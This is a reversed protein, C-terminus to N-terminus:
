QVLVELVLVRWFSPQFCVVRVVGFVPPSEVGPEEKKRKNKGGREKRRSAAPHM